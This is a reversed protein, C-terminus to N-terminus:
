LPDGQNIWALWRVYMPDTKSTFITGGGHGAGPLLHALAPSNEGMAQNAVAMFNTYNAQVTTTDTGPVLVTTQGSRHCGTTAAGCNQLDNNIDPNFHYAQTGLEGNMSGAMDGGTPSADTNTPTLDVIDGTCGAMGIVLLRVALRVNCQEALRM